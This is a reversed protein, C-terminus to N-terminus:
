RLQGELWELGELLGDATRANSSQVYWDRGRLAHLNLKHTLETPSIATPLDQKNAYVLLKVDTMEPDDLVGHLEDRAEDMRGVDSCDVVYILAQTNQFYYKWLPRIKHQGGVDWITFALNRYTVQEVNFGITPITTVLEGLKLKYLITTKGAADLGLMVIRMHKQTNVLRMFTSVLAGM